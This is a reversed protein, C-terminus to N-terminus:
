EKIIEAKFKYYTRYPTREQHSKTVKQTKNKVLGDCKGM